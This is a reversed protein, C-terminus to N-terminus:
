ADRLVRREARFRGEFSARGEDRMRPAHGRLYADLAAQDVLRYQVCLAIEGAPAPPDVVESIRADIFGPLALIEEVHTVLWVRYADAISADIWLNVEYTVRRTDSLGSM